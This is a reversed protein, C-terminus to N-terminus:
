HVNDESGTVWKCVKWNHQAVSQGIRVVRVKFKTSMNSSLGSAIEQLTPNEALPLPNSGM